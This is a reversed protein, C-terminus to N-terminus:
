ITVTLCDHLNDADKEGITMEKISKLQSVLKCVVDVAGKLTEFMKPDDLDVAHAFNRVESNRRPLQSKNLKAQWTAIYQIARGQLISCFMCLSALLSTKKTGVGPAKKLSFESRESDLFCEEFAQTNSAAYESNDRVQEKEGIDTYVQRSDPRSILKYFLM